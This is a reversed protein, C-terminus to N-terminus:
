LNTSQSGVERADGPRPGKTSALRGVERFGLREYMRVPLTAEPDALLIVHAADESRAERTLRATLASAFGRRRAQPFTAVNDLYGVGDLVLVAGVSSVEGEEDLAGFWRKGAPILVERELQMLQAVARPDDVGFVGLTAEVRTWLQDGPPLPVVEVAPSPPPDEALDMVLDWSLRNGRGSLQALLDTTAEPDFTVVHTIPAGVRELAPLLADDIERASPEGREVRAYNVDWIAPFRADTVVAGWPTPHVREFREDLSCWFRRVHEPVAM